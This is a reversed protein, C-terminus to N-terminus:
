LMVSKSPELTFPNEPLMLQLPHEPYTIGAELTVTTTGNNTITLRRERTSGVFIIGLDLTSPKIEIKHATGVLPATVSGQGGNIGVQVAGTFTGSETPDFRLTVQASQGPSLTPLVSVIKYPGATSLTLSVSVTGENKVTLAKEIPVRGERHAAQV